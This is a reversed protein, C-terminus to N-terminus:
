SLPVIRYLLDFHLTGDGDTWDATETHAVVALNEIGSLVGLTGVPDGGFNKPGILGTIRAVVSEALTPPVYGWRNDENAEEGAYILDMDNGGTTYPTGGPAFRATSGGLIELAFGAGPAAILVPSSVRTSKIQAATLSPTANLVAQSGGNGGGGDDARGTRWVGDILRRSIEQVGM